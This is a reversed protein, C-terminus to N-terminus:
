LLQAHGLSGPHFPECTPVAGSRLSAACSTAHELPAREAVTPPAVVQLGETFGSSFCPPPRVLLTRTTSYTLLLKTAQAPQANAALTMAALVALVRWAGM